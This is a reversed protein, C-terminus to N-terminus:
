GLGAVHADQIPAKAPQEKTQNYALLGAAIWLYKSPLTKVAFYGFGLVGLKAAMPLTSFKNLVGTAAPTLDTQSTTIFDTTQQITTASPMYDATASVVAVGNNVAKVVELQANNPSPSTVLVASAPDGMGKLAADLTSFMQEGNMGSLKRNQPAPPAKAQTGTVDSGHQDPRHYHEPAGTNARSHDSTQRNIDTLMNAAQIRGANRREIYTHHRQRIPGPAEWGPGFESDVVAPPMQPNIDFKDNALPGLTDEASKTFSDEKKPKASAAAILVLAMTLPNVLSM